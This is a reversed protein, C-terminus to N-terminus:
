IIEYKVVGYIEANTGAIVNQLIIRFKEGVALERDVLFVLFNQITTKNTRYYTNGEFLNEREIYMKMKGDNVEDTILVEIIKKPETETSTIEVVLEEDDTTNVHEFGRYYVPM